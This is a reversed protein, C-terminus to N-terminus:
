RNYAGSFAPHKPELVENSGQRSYPNPNGPPRNLAWRPIRHWAGYLKVSQTDITLFMRYSTYPAMTEVLRSLKAM